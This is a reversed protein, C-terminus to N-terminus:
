AGYLHVAERDLLEFLGVFQGNHHDEVIDAGKVIHTGDEATAIGETNLSNLEAADGGTRGVVLYVLGCQTALLTYVPAVEATGFVGHCVKMRASIIYITYLLYLVGGLELPQVEGGVAMGAVGYDEAVLDLSHLLLYYVHAIAAQLYGLQAGLM